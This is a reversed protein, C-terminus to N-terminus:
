LFSPVVKVFLNRRVGNRAAPCSVCRGFRPYYYQGPLCMMGAGADARGCLLLMSAQLLPRLSM